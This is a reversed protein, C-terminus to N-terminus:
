PFMLDFHIQFDAYLRVIFSLPVVIFMLMPTRCFAAARFAFPFEKALNGASSGAAFAIATVVVFASVIFRYAFVGITMSSEMIKFPLMFSDLYNYALYLCYWKAAIVIVLLTLFVVLSVKM